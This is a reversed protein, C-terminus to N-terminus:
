NKDLNKSVKSWSLGIEVKLGGADASKLFDQFEVWGLTVWNSINVM